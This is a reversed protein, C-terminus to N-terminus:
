KYNKFFHDGSDDPRHHNGNFAEELAEHAIKKVRELSAKQEATLHERDLKFQDSSTFWNVLEHRVSNEDRAIQDLMEQTERGAKKVFSLETDAEHFKEKAKEIEDGMSEVDVLLPVDSTDGPEAELSARQKRLEELQKQVARLSALAEAKEAQAKRAKEIVLNAQQQLQKRVTQITKQQRLRYQEHVQKFKEIIQRTELAAAQRIQEIEMSKTQQREIGTSFRALQERMKKRETALQQEFSERRTLEFTEQEKLRNKIVELEDSVRKLTLEKQESDKDDTTVRNREEQIHNQASELQKRLLGLESDSGNMAQKHLTNAPMNEIQEIKERAEILIGLDEAPQDIDLWEQALLNETTFMAKLDRIRRDVAMIQEGMSESINTMDDAQKEPLRSTPKEDNRVRDSLGDIWTESMNKEDSYQRLGGELYSVDFGRESLLTAAVSSRIGTDCYIIYSNNTSLKHLEQELQDLPLNESQRLHHQEFEDNFRVDLWIAGQKIQSTAQDFNVSVLSAEEIVEDFDKRALRMLTGSELMTVSTNRKQDSLLAEEGFYDGVELEALTVTEGTEYNHRTVVCCGERVIYFYKGPMNQTIVQDGKKVIMPELANFTKLLNAPPIKSLIESSLFQSSWSENLFDGIQDRHSELVVLKELLSRDVILLVVRSKAIATFFISQNIAVRSSETEASITKVLEQDTYLEVDGSLLYFLSDCKEDQEYLLNGSPIMVIEAQRLLQEQFVSSLRNVPNLQYIEDSYKQELREQM